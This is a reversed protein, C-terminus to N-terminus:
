QHLIELCSHICIFGGQALHTKLVRIALRSTVKKTDVVIGPAMCSTSAPQKADDVVRDDQGAKVQQAATDKPRTKWLSGMPMSAVIMIDSLM